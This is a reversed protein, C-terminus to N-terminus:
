RKVKVLYCSVGATIIAASGYGIETFFRVPGQSFNIGIPTVQFGLRFNVTDHTGVRAADFRFWEIDGGIGAKSYLTIHKGILWTYKVMPMVSFYHGNINGCWQDLLRWHGQPTAPAEYESHTVSFGDMITWSVLGGLAIRDNFHYMYHGGLTFSFRNFFREKDLLYLQQQDRAYDEFRDYRDVRTLLGATLGFEHRQFYSRHYKFRSIHGEETDQAALPCALLTLFSLTLLIKNM